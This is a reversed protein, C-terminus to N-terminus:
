KRKNRWERIIEVGSKGGKFVGSKRIRDIDIAAKKAKETNIRNMQELQQVLSKRILASWNIYDHMKMNSYIENDIKVSITTSEM